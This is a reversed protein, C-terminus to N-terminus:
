WYAERQRVLERRCSSVLLAAGLPRLDDYKDQGTYAAHLTGARDSGSPAGLVEAVTKAYVGTPPGGILDNEKMLLWAIASATNVEKARRRLVAPDRKAVGVLFLRCATRFETDLRPLGAACLRDLHASIGAVQERLDEPVVSLDLEEDPLPADDLAEVAEASGLAEILTHRMLPTLDGAVAAAYLENSHRLASTVGTARLQLLVDMWRDISAITEDQRQTSVRRERLAFRVVAPLAVPVADLAGESVTVDLPLRRLCLEVVVPSWRLADGSHNEAFELIEGVADMVGSDRAPGRGLHVSEPADWFAIEADSTDAGVLPAPGDYTDPMTTLFLELLPRCLPWGDQEWDPQLVDLNVLADEIRGRAEDLDMPPIATTSDGQERILELYRDRVMEVQEGIFFADKVITGMNHDVYAVATMATGDPFDIGLLFNDGDGLEDGMFYATSVTADRLGTVYGPLPQRRGALVHQLRRRQLDDGIFATAVHLLATTEAIDIEAFAELPGIWDEPLNASAAEAVSIIASADVLFAAPDGSLLSRRVGQMLEATAPDSGPLSAPLDRRSPRDRRRETNQNSQRTASRNPPRRSRGPKKPM